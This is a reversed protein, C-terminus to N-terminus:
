NHKCFHLISESAIANKRFIDRSVLMEMPIEEVLQFGVTKALDALLNVTIIEVKEGGAITHNNGVVVFASAAPKLVTHM